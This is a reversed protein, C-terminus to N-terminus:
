GSEGIECEEGLVVAHESMGGTSVGRQRSEWVERGRGAAAREIDGKGGTGLWGARRRMPEPQRGSRGDPASVGQSGAYL